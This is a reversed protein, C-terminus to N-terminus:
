HSHVTHGDDHSPAIRGTTGLPVSVTSPRGRDTFELTLRSGNTETVFTLRAEMRAGAPIAHHPLTGNVMTVTSTRGAASSTRLRFQDPSVTVPSSGHNWLSIVATVDAKGSGVLGSVGHSMGGLDANSVGNNIAAETVTISGFSARIPTGVGLGASDPAALSALEAQEGPHLVLPAAVLLGFVAAAVAAAAGLLVLVLTRRARVDRGAPARRVAPLATAAM